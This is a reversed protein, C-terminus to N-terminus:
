GSSRQITRRGTKVTGGVVGRWEGSGVGGSRGKRREDGRRTVVGGRGRKKAGGGGKM